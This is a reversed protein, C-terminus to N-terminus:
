QRATHADLQRLFEAEDTDNELAQTVLEAQTMPALGGVPPNRDISTPFSYGEASAAIVAAQILPDLQGARKRKLLVSYLKRSVAHRDVAEMARGMASSIQLLNAMRYTDTTQNAGAAHMVAPNFFVADGKSLALQRRNENFYQQYREQSFLVYGEVFQQSYPLYLTPGTELPMDCHAIAGQLTLLPSLAHIHAPFAQMQEPTMFGLHYDRHASQAAGGPNVRNVQATVQYGRGLWAECVLAIAENGYYDVFNEADALAHKELSNWIRDNSGAKAFHDAQASTAARHQEDIITDYLASTIDLPATDEFANAIVVVGPGDTFLRAWEALLVRRQDSDRCAERIADGHYVLTNQEVAAAMPWDHIDTTQQVQALFTAFLAEDAASTKHNEGSVTESNLDRDTLAAM